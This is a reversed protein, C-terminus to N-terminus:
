HLAIGPYGLAPTDPCAGPQMTSDTRGMHYAIDLFNGSTSQLCYDTASGVATLRSAEPLSVSAKPVKVPFTGGQQLFREIIASQATSCLSGCKLVFESQELTPGQIVINSSVQGKIHTNGGNYLCGTNYTTAGDRIPMQGNCANLFLQANQDSTLNEYVPIYPANTFLVVAVNSPMIYETGALNPPYSGKDVRYLQVSKQADSLAKQTSSDAARHQVGNYGVVTIAALIGIIVIIVILEVLTFGSVNQNTIKYRM